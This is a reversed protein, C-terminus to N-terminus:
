LSSVISDDSVFGAADLSDTIVRLNALYKAITGETNFHISADHSHTGTIISEKV